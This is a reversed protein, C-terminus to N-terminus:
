LRPMTFKLKTVQKYQPSSAGFVSKIYTKVGAAVALLGTEPAYLINNRAIRANSVPTNANIVATNAAKMNNLVGTLGAVSLEPENPKYTPLAMLLELLRNLNEIQSDYSMQVASISKSSENQPTAPDNPVTEKKPSARRGQLKKAISKVDAIVQVPVDSAAVANTVRTVLKSLQNFAIERQNVANTLAPISSNLAALANLADTRKTNLADMTISPKTPKYAAGYGTCFSILDEFNAANKAHGTESTSAM